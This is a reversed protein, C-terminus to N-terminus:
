LEVETVEESTVEESAVEEIDYDSKKMAELLGLLVQYDNGDLESFSLIINKRTVDISYSVKM